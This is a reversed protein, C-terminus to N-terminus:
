RRVLVRFWFYVAALAGAAGVFIVPWTSAVVLIAIVLLTFLVAYFLAEQDSVVM